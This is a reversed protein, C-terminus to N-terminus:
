LKLTIIASMEYTRSVNLLCKFGFCATISMSNSLIFRTLPIPENSPSPSILKSTSVFHLVQLFVLVLHM